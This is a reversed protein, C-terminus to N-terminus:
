QLYIETRLPISVLLYQYSLGELLISAPTGTYQSYVMHVFTKTVVGAVVRSVSCEWIGKKATKLTIFIITIFCKVFVM